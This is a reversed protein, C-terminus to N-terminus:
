RVSEEVIEWETVAALESPMHELFQQKLEEGTMRDPIPCRVEGKPQKGVLIQQTKHGPVLAGLM